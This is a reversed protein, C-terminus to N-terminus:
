MNGLANTQTDTDFSDVPSIRAWNAKSQKIRPYLSCLQLRCLNGPHLPRQSEASLIGLITAWASHEM